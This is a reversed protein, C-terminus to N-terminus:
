MVLPLDHSPPHLDCSWRSIMHHSIHVVQGITCPLGSIGDVSFVLVLLASGLVGM